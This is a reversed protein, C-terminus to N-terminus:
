NNLLKNNKQLFMTLLFMLNVPIFIAIIISHIKMIKPINNKLACKCGIDYMKKQYMYLSYIFVILAILLIFVLLKNRFIKRGINRKFLLSLILILTIYILIFICYYKIYEKYLIDSCSCKGEKKNLKYIYYLYIIPLGVSLFLGIGSICLAFIFFFIIGYNQSNM